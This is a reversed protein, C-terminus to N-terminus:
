VGGSARRGVPGPNGWAHLIKDTQAYLVAAMLDPDSSVADFVERATERDDFAVASRVQASVWQAYIESKSQLDETLEQEQERAFHVVLSAVLAVQLGCVLLGLKQGISSGWRRV